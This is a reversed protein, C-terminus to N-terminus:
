DNIAEIAEIFALGISSAAILLMASALYANTLHQLVIEFPMYFNM